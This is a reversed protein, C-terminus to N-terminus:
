VEDLLDAKTIIGIIDGVETTLVSPYYKLIEKILKVDAEPDILPFSPSMFKRVPDEQDLSDIDSLLCRETISGISRQDEIIPLQSIAYRHMKELALGITDSPSVTQVDTTHVDNAKSRIGESTIMSSLTDLIKKGKSYSPETKENEVKAILSQSVGAKDALEAQTLGIKKRTNKIDDLEKLMM